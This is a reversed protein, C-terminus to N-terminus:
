RMRVSPADIWPYRVRHTMPVEPRGREGHTLQDFLIRLCQRVGIELNRAVGAFPEYWPDDLLRYILAVQVDEPIRIGRELLGYIPDLSWAVIGDPLERRYWEHFVERMAYGGSKLLLPPIAEVDGHAAQESLYAGMRLRDQYTQGEEGMFQGGIRRCGAERLKSFCVRVADSWDREVKNYPFESDIDGVGLVCFRSLDLARVLDMLDTGGILLAEVGRRHLNDLLKEAAKRTRVVHHRDFAFGYREGQAQLAEVPVESQKELRPNEGVFGVYGVPVYRPSGSPRFRRAALRSLLPNRQYGLRAAVELIATRRKQSLTGTGNVAHSAASVSVGAAKAVDKLWVEVM